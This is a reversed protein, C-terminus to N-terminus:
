VHSLKKYSTYQLFQKEFYELMCIYYEIPQKHKASCSLLLFKNQKQREMWKDPLWVKQTAQSANRCMPIVKDTM